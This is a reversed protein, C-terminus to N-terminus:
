KDFVIDNILSGDNGIVFKYCNKLIGVILKLIVFSGREKKRM